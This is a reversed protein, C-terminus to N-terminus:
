WKNDVLQGEFSWSIEHLPFHLNFDKDTWLVNECYYILQREQRSILLFVFRLAFILSPSYVILASHVHEDSIMNSMINCYCQISQIYSPIITLYVIFIINLTM